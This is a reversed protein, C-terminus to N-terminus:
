NTKGRAKALALIAMEMAESFSSVHGSESAAVVAELAYYLDPAAAILRANAIQEDNLRCTHNCSCDAIPHIDCHNEAYVVIAGYRSCERLDDRNEDALSWPGATFDTM